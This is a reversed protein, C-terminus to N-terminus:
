KVYYKGQVYRGKERSIVVKAIFCAFSAIWQIYFGKELVSQSKNHRILILGEGTLEKIELPM